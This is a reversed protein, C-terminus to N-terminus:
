QTHGIPPALPLSSPKEGETELFSESLLQWRPERDGAGPQLVAVGERPGAPKLTPRSGAPEVEAGGAPSRLGKMGAREAGQVLDRLALVRWAGAELQVAVWGGSSSGTTGAESHEGTRDGSKLDLWVNKTGGCNESRPSAKGRPSGVATGKGPAWPTAHGSEREQGGLHESASTCISDSRSRAQTEGQGGGWCPRWGLAQMKRGRLWVGAGAQEECAHAGGLSPIVGSGRGPCELTQGERTAVEVLVWSLHKRWLFSARGGWGPCGM